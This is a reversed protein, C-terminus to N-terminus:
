PDRKDRPAYPMHFQGRLLRQDAERILKAQIAAATPVPPQNEIPVSEGGKYEPEDEHQTTRGAADVVTYGNEGISGGRAGGRMLRALGREAFWTAMIQDTEQVQTRLDSGTVTSFAKVMACVGCDCGHSHGDMLGKPIVWARNQFQVDLSMVGTLPDWKNTGTTWAKVRSTWPAPNAGVTGWEILSTQYGNSEVMVLDPRWRNYMLTLNNSTEPSSWAGRRAELLWVTRGDTGLAVIANGPRKASSLDVGFAVVICGAPVEAFAPIAVVCDGFHPFAQSGESFPRQRRGCNHWVSSKTELSDLKVKDFGGATWLPITGIPLGFEYKKLIPREAPEHVRQVHPTFTRSTLQQAWPYDSLDLGDSVVSCEITDNVASVAQVLVCYPAHRLTRSGWWDEDHWRTGIHEEYGVWVRTEGPKRPVIRSQWVGEVAQCVKEREAPKLVSNHLDAVDDVLLVDARVGTGASMVTRAAISPDAAAGGRQRQMYLRLDAPSRRYKVHPFLLMYRTSEIIDRILRIRGGANEDSNTLILIRLDPDQAIIWAARAAIRQVSKGHGWPALTVPVLRRAWCWQAHSEWSRHIDGQVLPVGDDSVLVAECFTHFGEATPQLCRARLDILSQAARRRLGKSTAIRRALAGEAM